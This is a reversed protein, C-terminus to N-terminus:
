LLILIGNISHTLFLEIVDYLIILFIKLKSRVNQGQSWLNNNKLLNQKRLDRIAKM